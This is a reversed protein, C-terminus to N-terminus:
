KKCYGSFKNGFIRLKQRIGERRLFAFKEEFLLYSPELNVETFINKLDNEFSIISRRNCHTPDDFLYYWFKDNGKNQWATRIDYLRKIPYNPAGIFFCGGVKLIRYIEILFKKYLPYPIHEVVNSSFVVDFSESPFPLSAIKESILICSLGKMHASILRNFSVEVGYVHAPTLVSSFAQMYRGTGCGFDLLKLSSRYNRLDIHCRKLIMFGADEALPQKYINDAANKRLLTINNILKKITNV